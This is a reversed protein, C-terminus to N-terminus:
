TTVEMVLCQSLWIDLVHLQAMGEEESSEEEATRLWEIIPAAKERIERAKEKGVHKRSVQLSLFFYLNKSM